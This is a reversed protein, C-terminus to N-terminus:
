EDSHVQNSSPGVLNPHCAGCRPRGLPDPPSRPWPWFRGCWRWLLREWIRTFVRRFGLVVMRFDVSTISQSRSSTCLGELTSGLEFGIFFEHFHFSEPLGFQNHQAKEKAGFSRCPLYGVSLTQGSYAESGCWWCISAKLLGGAPVRLTM